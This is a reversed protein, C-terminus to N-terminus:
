FIAKIPLYMVILRVFHFKEKRISNAVPIGRDAETLHETFIGDALLLLALTKNLKKQNTSKLCFLNTLLKTLIKRKDGHM